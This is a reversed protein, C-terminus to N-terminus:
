SESTEGLENETMQNNGAFYNSKHLYYGGFASVTIGVALLTWLLNKKM